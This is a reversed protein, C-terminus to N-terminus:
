LMDVPIRLYRRGRADPGPLEGAQLNVQISPILLTPMALSADRRERMAVFEAESVGDHLHINAARQAAVSSEWAAARGGPAYDHATFIRTAGPLSLIRRISRYLAHADGGPFDCRATGGDPMFLTDGVFAADEVLYTVCAPTHGPTHMVRVELGGVAFREADAFLHDFPNIEDAFRDVGFVAEFARRVEPIRDGIGIRGGLARKVYPAGSLHDAHVHTELIWALQYGRARVHAIVRDASAHSTRGSRPDFDLVSDIVAAVGSAPDALVYSITGTAPDHFAAIEAAM